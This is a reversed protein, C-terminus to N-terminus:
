TPGLMSDSVRGVPTCNFLSAFSEVAIPNIVLCESQRMVNINYGIRKYRMIVKRFQGSFDTRCVIKKLKYVFDGFHKTRIPGTAFSIKIRGQIKFGICLPSLIKFIKKRLKHIRYGQDLFYISLCHDSILVIM